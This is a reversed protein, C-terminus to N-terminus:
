RENNECVWAALITIITVDFHGSLPYITIFKHRFDRESFTEVSIFFSGWEDM